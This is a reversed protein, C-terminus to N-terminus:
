RGGYGALLRNIEQDLRKELTEQADKKVKEMIPPQSVMSRMSSGMLQNIPTRRKTDREFIGEKKATVNIYFAHELAQITKQGAYVTSKGKDPGSPKVGEYKYLPIQEGAFVLTGCIDGQTAKVIKNTTYNDITSRKLKYESTVAKYATNKGKDLARNIANAFAREAGNPIDSLLTNVKNITNETIELM